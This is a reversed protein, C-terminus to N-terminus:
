VRAFVEDEVHCGGEGPLTSGQHCAAAHKWWFMEKVKVELDKVGEVAVWKRCHHCRGELIRAREYKGPNRRPTVRFAVPPSFPRSTLASIGHSYQMHYNFASFKMSLWMHKGAGGRAPSEACVPCLGVKTHGRGKVFRPTYLDLADRPPNYASG